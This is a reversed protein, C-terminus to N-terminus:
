LDIFTVLEGSPKKIEVRIGGINLTNERYKDSLNYAPDFTKDLVLGYDDFAESESGAPNNKWIKSLINKAKNYTGVLFEGTMIVSKGLFNTRRKSEKVLDEYEHNALYHNIEDISKGKTALDIVDIPYFVHSIIEYSSSTDFGCFTAM